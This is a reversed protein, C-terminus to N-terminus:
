WEDHVLELIKPNAINQLISYLNISTVEMWFNISSLLEFFFFGCHHCSAGKWKHYELSRFWIGMSKWTATADIETKRFSNVLAFLNIQEWGLSSVVECYCFQSSVSQRTSKILGPLSVSKPWSQFKFYFLHPKWLLPQMDRLFKAHLGPCTCRLHPEM